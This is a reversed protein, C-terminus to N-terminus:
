ASTRTPAAGWSPEGLTGALAGKSATGWSPENAVAMVADARSSGWSPEGSVVAGLAAAAIALACLARLTRSM